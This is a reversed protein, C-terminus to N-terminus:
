EKETDIKALVLTQGLAPWLRSALRRIQNLPYYRWLAASSLPKLGAQAVAAYLSHPTFGHLHEFPAMTHTRAGDYPWVDWIASGEPARLVNPVTLRLLTQPHCYARAGKLIAVPDPVHELVQELNIVDFKRGALSELDHVLTFDIEQSEAGRAASPEFATVQFGEAVAARAWRGFGSGYDLLTPLAKGGLLGRLRRMEKRMALTPERTSAVDARLLKGSAYMSSLAAEDPRHSYWYHDCSACHLVALDVGEIWSDMLGDYKKQSYALYRDRQPGRMAAVSSANGDGCVPCAPLNKM